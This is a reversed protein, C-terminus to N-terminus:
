CEDFNIKSRMIKRGKITVELEGKIKSYYAYEIAEIIEEIPSYNKDTDLLINSSVCEDNKYIYLIVTTKSVGEGFDVCNKNKNKTQEM